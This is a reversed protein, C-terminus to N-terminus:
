GLAGLLREARERLAALGGGECADGLLPTGLGVAVAGARLYAAAEEIGVGGTPVLPVQPLPARVASLHSPGGSGAPFLKVMSAGLRWATLVETPTFAGPLVAVELRRAEAVVEPVVAPSVVYRAGAEVSLEVEVATTVSGIGLHLTDPADTAMERLADLAGPTTLTLEVVGVGSEHLTRTVEAFRSATSSRLIAIAPAASLAVQLQGDHRPPDEGSTPPVAGAPTLPGPHGPTANPSSATPSAAGSPTRDQDPRM